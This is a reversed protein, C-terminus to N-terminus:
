VRRFRLQKGFKKKIEAEALSRISKTIINKPNYSLRWKKVGTNEFTQYVGERNKSVGGGTLMYSYKAVISNASHHLSELKVSRSFIGSRMKLMGETGHKRRVEAGLRSNIYKTLKALERIDQTSAEKGQGKEPGKKAIGAGLGKIRIPGRKIAGGKKSSVVTGSRRKPKPKPTKIKAFVKAYKKNKKMLDQVIKYQAARQAQQAFSVSAEFHAADKPNFPKADKLFANINTNIDKRLNVWDTKESNSLNQPQAVLTGKVIRRMELKGTKLNYVATEEWKVELSDEVANWLAVTRQDDAFVGDFEELVQNLDIQANMEQLAATGVTTEHAYPVARGITGRLGEPDKEKEKPIKEVGKGGKFGNVEFWENWVWRRYRKNFNSWKYSTSPSGAQKNYFRIVMSSSSKEMLYVGPFNSFNKVQRLKTLQTGKQFDTKSLIKNNINQIAITWKNKNNYKNLARIKEEEFGLKKALRDAGLMFGNALKANDLTVDHIFNSDMQKRIGNMAKAIHNKIEAEIREKSM